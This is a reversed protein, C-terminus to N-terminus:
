GNDGVSLNEIIRETAKGRDPVVQQSEVRLRKPSFLDGGPAGGDGLRTLVVQITTVSPPFENRSMGRQALEKGIAETEQKKEIPAVTRKIFPHM